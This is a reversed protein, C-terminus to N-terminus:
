CVVALRVIGDNDLVAGSRANDASACKKAKVRRQLRVHQSEYTRRSTGVHRWNAERERGVRRVSFVSNQTRAQRPAIM